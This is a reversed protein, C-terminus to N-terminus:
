LWGQTLQTEHLKLCQGVKKYFTTDTYIFIYMFVIMKVMKHTDYFHESILSDQIYQICHSTETETCLLLM